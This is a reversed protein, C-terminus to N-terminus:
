VLMKRIKTPLIFHDGCAMCVVPKGIQAADINHISITMSGDQTGDCGEGCHPCDVYVAAIKTKGTKLAGQM